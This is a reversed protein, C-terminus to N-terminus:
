NNVRICSILNCVSGNSFLLAVRRNPDQKNITIGIVVETKEGNKFPKGTIKAVTDGIEIAGRLYMNLVVETSINKQSINYFTKTEINFRFNKSNLFLIFDDTDEVLSEVHKCLEPYVIGTKFDELLQVKQM